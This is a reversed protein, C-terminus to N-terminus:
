TKLTSAKPLAAQKSPTEAISMGGGAPGNHIMPSTKRELYKVTKSAPLARMPKARAAASGGDAHDETHEEYFIVTVNIELNKDCKKTKQGGGMRQLLGICTTVLSASAEHYRERLHTFLPTSPREPLPCSWLLICLLERKVELM